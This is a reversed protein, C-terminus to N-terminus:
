WGVLTFGKIVRPVFCRFEVAAPRAGKRLMHGISAGASFFILFVRTAYWESSRRVPHCHSQRFNHLPHVRCSETVRDETWISNKPSHAFVAM